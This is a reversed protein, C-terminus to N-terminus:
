PCPESTAMRGGGHNSGRLRPDHGLPVWRSPQGMPDAYDSRLSLANRGFGSGEVFIPGGIVESPNTEREVLVQIAIQYFDPKGPVESITLRLLRRQNHLTNEMANTFGAHQRKWPEIVQASPLAQTTIVGLRYDRRDLTFGTRAILQMAQKWVNDYSAKYVFRATQNPDIIKVVKRGPPLNELAPSDQTSPGSDQTAPATSSQTSAIRTAPGSAVDVPDIKAPLTAPETTAPVEHEEDRAVAPSPPPVPEPDTLQIAASGDDPVWVEVRQLPKLPEITSHACAALPLLLAGLALIRHLNNM